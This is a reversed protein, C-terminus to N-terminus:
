GAKTAWKEVEEALQSYAAAVGRAMAPRYAVLDQGVLGADSASISHPVIALIPHGLGEIKAMVRRHHKTHGRYGLVVIGILRSIDVLGLLSGLGRLALFEPLTPIIVGDSAEVAAGTADGLTPPTDVLVYDMGALGRLSGRLDQAGVQQVGPSLLSLCGQPDLDILAVFRGRARLAGALAATTTTKGTGGKQNCISITKM